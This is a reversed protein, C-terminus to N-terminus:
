KGRRMQVLLLFACALNMLGLLLSSAWIGVIPVLVTGALLSGLCAGVHDASDVKGATTGTSPVIKFYLTTVLPFIFGGLVGAIFIFSMFIALTFGAPLRAMLVASLVLLAVPLLSAYAAEAIEMGVLTRLGARQARVLLNSVLGGVALGVMFLAIILGIQYYLYGYLNQFAFVLILELAMSSFGCVTIIALYNFQAVYTETSPRRIAIVAWVACLLLILVASIVGAVRYGNAYVLWYAMALLAAAAACALAVECVRRARAGLATYGLRALVLGLVLAALLKINFREVLKFFSQLKNGASADWRRLNYYYTIPRLDTNRPVGRLKMMEDWAFQLRPQGIIIPFVEARFNPV